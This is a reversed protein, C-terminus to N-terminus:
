QRAEGAYRLYEFEEGRPVIIPKGNAANGPAHPALPPAMGRLGLVTVPKM